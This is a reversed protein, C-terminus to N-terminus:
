ELLVTAVDFYVSTAAVGVKEGARPVKLAGCVTVIELTVGPALADVVGGVAGGRGSVGDVVGAGDLNGRRM